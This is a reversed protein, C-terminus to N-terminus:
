SISSLLRVGDELSDYHLRLAPAGVLTEVTRRHIMNVEEGYSPMDRLLLPLTEAPAVTELRAPGGSGRALFVIYRVTCRVATAIGPLGATPVEIAITGTPRARPTWAAIEPFFRASDERLRAVHPRGLATRDASGSLLWTCDDGLYTFGACACAFALTSKGAGSPGTLLIGAGNRAICAAHIAVLHRQALLLYAISEVFFWRLWTHDQATQQSVWISAFLANTDAIGFNYADGVVHILHGQMRFRPRPSLDGAAEVVVRMEVPRTFFEQAWMGWSEAGADVVDRSNSVLHLPFGVPFFTAAFPLELDRLLPDFRRGEM